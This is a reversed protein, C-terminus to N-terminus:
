SSLLLLLVLLLFLPPSLPVPLTLPPWPFQTSPTHLDLSVASNPCPWFAQLHRLWSKSHSMKAQVQLPTTGPPPSEIDPTVLFMLGSHCEWLITITNTSLGPFYCLCRSDWLGERDTLAGTTTGVLATCFCSTKWVWPLSPLPQQRTRQSHWIVGSM